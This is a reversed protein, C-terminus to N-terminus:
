RLLQFAEDFLDADTEFEFRVDQGWDIGALCEKIRTLRPALSQLADLRAYIREVTPSSLGLRNGLERLLVADPDVCEGSLLRSVAELKREQVLLQSMRAEPTFHVNGPKTELQKHMRLSRRDNTDQLQDREDTVTKLQDELHAIKTESDTPGFDTIPAYSCIGIRYHGKPTRFPNRM